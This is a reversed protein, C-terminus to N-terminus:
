APPARHETAAMGAAVALNDGRARELMRRSRAQQLLVTVPASALPMLLWHVLPALVVLAAAGLWLPVTWRRAWGDKAALLEEVERARDRAEDPTTAVGLDAATMSWANRTGM